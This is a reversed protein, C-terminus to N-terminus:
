EWEEIDWKIARIDRAINPLVARLAAASCAAVTEGHQGDPPPIFIEPDYARLYRDVIQACAEQVTVKCEVLGIGFMTKLADMADSIQQEHEGADCECSGCTVSSITKEVAGSDFAQVVQLFKKYWNPPPKPHKPKPDVLLPLIDPPIRAGKVNVWKWVRGQNVGLRNGVDRYSQKVRRGRRDTKMERLMKRIARKAEKQM